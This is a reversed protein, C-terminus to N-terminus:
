TFNKKRRDKTDKRGQRGGGKGQAKTQRSQTPGPSVSRIQCVVKGLIPTKTLWNPGKGDRRHHISAGAEGEGPIIM